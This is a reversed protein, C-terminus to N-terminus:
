TKEYSPLDNGKLVSCLKITPIYWLKSIWEDVSPCRTAQLDAKAIIFLAAISMWACTKTHVYMKLEKPYIGPLTIATDDPLPMNLTTLLWWVTKWPTRVRKCAWWHHTTNRNNWMRM